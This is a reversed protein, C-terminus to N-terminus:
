KLQKEAGLAKSRNMERSTIEHHMLDCEVKRGQHCLNDAIRGMIDLTLPHDLGRTRERIELAERATKEAQRKDNVKWYGWQLTCLNNVRSEDDTGYIIKQKDVVEQLLTVGEQYSAQELLQLATRENNKIEEAASHKNYLKV